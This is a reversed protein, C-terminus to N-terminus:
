AACSADALEADAPDSAATGTPPSTAPLRLQTFMTDLQSVSPLTSGLRRREGQAELWEVIAFTAACDDDNYALLRQRAAESVEPAVDPDTAQAFWAMSNGGSPDEDRWVFGCVKTAITKLRVDETPFLVDSKVFEHVDVWDNSDFYARLEEFTPVGELGAHEKAKRLLTSREHHTYCYGKVGWRNVKGYSKMTTVYEWWDAIVKAEAEPTIEWTVFAHYENRRRESTGDTKAKGFAKVGIQYVFGGYDEIDTHLEIAARPIPVHSVGRALHAKGVKLVRARDIQESLRAVKSNTYAATVVCLESLQEATTVGCDALRAVLDDRRDRMTKTAVHADPCVDLVDGVGTNASATDAIEMLEVVDFGADVLMATAVDLRALQSVTTLGRTAHITVQELTVGIVQSIDDTLKRTTDCLTHWVCDGCETRKTPAVPSAVRADVRDTVAVEAVAMREDWEREYYELPSLKTRKGDVQAFFMPEDLQYVLAHEDKGILLGYSTADEHLGFGAANLQHVYHALQLADEKRYSGSGFAETSFAATISLEDFPVALRQTPKTSGTLVAHHKVDGPLYTNRGDTLTSHFVLFDPESIRRGELDAPLRANWVLQAGLELAAITAQERAQKSAPTRDCSAIFVAALSGDPAYRVTNVGKSRALKKAEASAKTSTKFGPTEKILRAEIEDEFENGEEMRHVVADSLTDQLERPVAPSLDNFVKRTCDKAFYGGRPTVVPLAPLEAM